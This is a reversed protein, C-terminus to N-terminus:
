EADMAMDVDAPGTEAHSAASIPQQIYPGGAPLRGSPLAEASGSISLAVAGLALSVTVAAIAREAITLPRSRRM